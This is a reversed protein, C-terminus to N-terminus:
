EIQGMESMHLQERRLGLFAKVKKHVDEAHGLTPAAAIRDVQAPPVVVLVVRQLQGGGLYRPHPMHRKAGRAGLRELPADLRDLRGALALPPGVIQAM